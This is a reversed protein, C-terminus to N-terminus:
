RFSLSHKLLIDEILKGKRDLKNGGWLSSHANFDGLLLVPSPLQDLLDDIDASTWQALYMYLSCVTFSNM